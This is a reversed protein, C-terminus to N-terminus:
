RGRRGRIGRRIESGRPQASWYATAAPRQRWGQQGALGPGRTRKYRTSGTNDPQMWSGSPPTIGAMLSGSTRRMKIKGVGALCCSGDDFNVAGCRSGARCGLLSERARMWLGRVRRVHVSLNGEIITLPVSVYTRVRGQEAYGRQCAARGFWAAAHHHTTVGEMATRHCSAPANRLHSRRQKSGRGTKSM